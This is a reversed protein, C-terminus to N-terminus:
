IFITRMKHHFCVLKQLLTPVAWGGLLMRCVRPNFNGNKRRVEHMKLQLGANTVFGSYGISPCSLSPFGVNPVMTFGPYRIELESIIIGSGQLDRWLTLEIALTTIM